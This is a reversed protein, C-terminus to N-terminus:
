RDGLPLEEPAVLAIFTCREYFTLLWASHIEHEKLVAYRYEFVDKELHHHAMEDLFEPQIVYKLVDAWVQRDQVPSVGHHHCLGRVIKRIIRMVRDDRAPYVKYRTGEVMEVPKMQTGIDLVRRRGDVEDFSRRTKTQWLEHVSPNPEGAVLIVNRFHAEDDAWSKNCARCVPVTLRQVKSGAKSDPYLSAPVVHDRERTLVPAGCYACPHGKM